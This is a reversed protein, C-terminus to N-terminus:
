PQQAPPKEIELLEVEFVLTAGPKITPPAGQDGYAVEPPCVLKSKGGVKMRQLGETWCPIVRDLPFSAPTGRDVSSDFVTGDRLMGHYHVKVNDIRTPSEGTGEKITTIVMGSETQVAGDEAAASKMFAESETEEAATAAEARSRGLEQVQQGYAQLDIQPRGLVGDNLGAQVYALEDETLEYAYLSRAVALGVAYLTKQDETELAAGSADASSADTSCAPQMMLLAINVGLWIVSKM